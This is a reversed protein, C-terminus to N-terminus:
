DDFNRKIREHFKKLGVSEKPNTPNDINFDSYLQEMLLGLYATKSSVKDMGKKLSTINENELYSSSSYMILECITESLRTNNLKRYNSIIKEVEDTLYINHYNKKM